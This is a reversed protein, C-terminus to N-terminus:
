QSKLLLEVNKNLQKSSTTVFESKISVNMLEIQVQLVDMPQVTKDTTTSFVQSVKEFSQDFGSKLDSVQDIIKDSVDMTENPQTAKQEQGLHAEFSAVDSDLTIPALKSSNGLDTAPAVAGPAVPITM